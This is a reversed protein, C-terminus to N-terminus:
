RRLSSRSRHRRARYPARPEAVFTEDLHDPQRTLARVAVRNARSKTWGRGRAVRRAARPRARRHVGAVPLAHDTLTDSGSPSRWRNMFWTALTDAYAIRCAAATAGRPPCIHRTDQDHDQEGATDRTVRHGLRLRRRRRLGLALQAPREVHREGRGPEIRALQSGAEDRREPHEVREVVCEELRHGAIEHRRAQRLRPLLARVALGVLELEALAEPEVVAIREGRVVHLETVLPRLDALDELVLHAVDLDHTRVAHAKVQVLGKGVEHREIARQGATSGPDHRLLVDLADAVLRELLRRDTETGVLVDAVRRADLEHHFGELAVPALRRRHLPEHELGHGLRGRARGHDLVALDVDPVHEVGWVRELGLAIGAELQAEGAGE